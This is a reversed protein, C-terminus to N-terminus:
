RSRSSHRAMAAWRSAASISRISQWVPNVSIPLTKQGHWAPSEFKLYLRQDEDTIRYLLLEVIQAMGCAFKPHGSKHELLAIIRDGLLRKALDRAQGMAGVTAKIRAGSVLEGAIARQQRRRLRHPSPARPPVAHRRRGTVIGPPPNIVRRQIPPSPHLAFNFGCRAWRKISPPTPDTDHCMMVARERSSRSSTGAVSAGYFTGGSARGTVRGGADNFTRTGQSDTTSRATARGDPGYLTRSQGLADTSFLALVIAFGAARRRELDLTM